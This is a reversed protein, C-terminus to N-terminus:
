REMASFRDRARRLQTLRRDATAGLWLVVAGVVAITLWRPLEAAVPGLTDLALIALTGTGIVLPAQLQWRAGAATVAAAAVGLVVPRILGDDVVAVALTPAFSVVLAPAYVLWSSSSPAIRRRVEGAALAGVAAPLTYAELTRVDAVVLWAWTAFVAVASAAAVYWRRDARTGAVALAPSLLTLAIALDVEDDFALGLGVGMAVAAIVEAPWGDDERWLSAAILVVAAAGTAVIGVQTATADAARAAMAALAVFPVGTLGVMALRTTGQPRALAAAAASAVLAAACLVITTPEAAMAWGIAAPALTLGGAVLAARWVTWRRRDALGTLVVAALAPSATVAAAVDVRSEFALPLLSMAAASASGAAVAAGITLAEDDRSRLVLMAAGAAACLLVAAIPGAQDIPASVPLARVIGTSPDHSWADEVIGVPGLVAVGVVGASAVTVAGLLSSAAGVVGRRVTAPTFSGAASVVLATAAVLSALWADDATSWWAISAAGLVALTAAATLADRFVRDETAAAGAVPALAVLASALVLALTPEGHDAVGVLVAVVASASFVFAAISALGASADWGLRQLGARGAVLGSAGVSLGMSISPATEALAFAALYASAAIAGVTIIRASAFMRGAALAAGGAVLTGIAWWTPLDLGAGVGARRLALWDIMLLALTLAAFVEATATLRERLGTAAFGALVTAGALMAARGADDLRQWAFAAFTLAAIALLAGGLWLLVDRVVDARWEAGRTDQRYLAPIDDDGGDRNTGGVAALLREREAALESRERGLAAAAADIQSLRHVVVRLRGVDDGGQDLGCRGCVPAGETLALCRPCWTPPATTM